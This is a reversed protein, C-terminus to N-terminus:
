NRKIGMLKDAWAETWFHYYSGEHCWSGHIGAHIISCIGVTLLYVPGLITSQKCHGLEHKIDIKNDFSLFIYRGLSIGGNFNDNIYVVKDYVRHKTKGPYLLTLFLGILNQPLQWLYLLISKLIKM